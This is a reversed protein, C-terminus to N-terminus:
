FDLLGDIRCPRTFLHLVCNNQAENVNDEFGESLKKGLCTRKLQSRYSSLKHHLIHYNTKREQNLNIDSTIKSLFTNWYDLM